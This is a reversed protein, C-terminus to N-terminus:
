LLTVKFTDSALRVEKEREAVFCLKGFDVCLLLFASFLPSYTFSYRRSLFDHQKNLM